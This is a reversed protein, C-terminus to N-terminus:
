HNGTKVQSTLVVPKLFLVVQENELIIGDKRYIDEKFFAHHFLLLGAIAQM